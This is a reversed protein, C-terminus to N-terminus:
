FEFMCDINIEFSKKKEEDSHKKKKKLEKHISIYWWWVLCNIKYKIICIRMSECNLENKKDFVIFM